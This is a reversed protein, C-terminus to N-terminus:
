DEKRKARAQKLRESAAAKWEESRKKSPRIRVWSNPVVIELGYRDEHVIKTDDPYEELMRHLTKIMSPKSSYVTTEKIYHDINVVTEQEEALMAGQAAKAM